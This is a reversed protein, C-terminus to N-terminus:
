SGRKLLKLKRYRIRQEGRARIVSKLTVTRKTELTKRFRFRVRARVVKGKKAKVRRQIPFTYRRGKKAALATARVHCRGNAQVGLCKLKLFLNRGDFVASGGGPKGDGDDGGSGSEDSAVLEVDDYGVQGSEFAEAGSTFRIVIRVFYRHGLTLARPPISAPAGATWSQDAKMLPADIVRTGKGGASVDVLEVVYGASNGVVSLGSEIRALHNVSLALGTPKRGEVGEYTFAPSRLVGRVESGIGALGTIGTAIYGDSAGLTGGTAVFGSSVAPCTLGELCLGSSESAKEWGGDSTVFSRANLDPPYITAGDAAASAPALGAVLLPSISAAAVM